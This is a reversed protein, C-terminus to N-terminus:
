DLNADDVFLGQVTENWNVVNKWAEALAAATIQVRQDEKLFQNLEHMTRMLLFDFVYELLWHTDGDATFDPIWQVADFYVTFTEGGLAAVDAPYIYFTQGHLVCVLPSSAQAIPAVEAQATSTSNEYRRQTRKAWAERSMMAIPFQGTGGSIALYAQRVSRVGTATSTGYLQANALSGGNLRSVNPVQIFLEAYKFVLERQAFDKAHNIAALLCDESAVTFVAQTRTMFALAQKKLQGITRAM